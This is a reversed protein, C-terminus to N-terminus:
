GKGRWLAGTLMGAIVMVMGIVQIASISEGLLLWAWFTGFAPVLPPLLAARSPGLAEVARSYLIIAVGGAVLGQYGAQLMAEGPESEIVDFGFVVLHIPIWALSLVGITVAARLGSVNWQRMLVGYLAWTFGSLIFLMDGIWVASGGHGLESGGILLLGLALLPLGIRTGTDPAKSLLLWALLPASVM